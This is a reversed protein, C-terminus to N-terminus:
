RSSADSGGAPRAPATPSSAGPAPGPPVKPLTAVPAKPSAYGGKKEFGSGTLSKNESSLRAM